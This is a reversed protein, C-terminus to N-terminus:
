KGFIDAISCAGHINMILLLRVLPLINSVIMTFAYAVATKSSLSNESSM